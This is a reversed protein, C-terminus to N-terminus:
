MGYVDTEIKKANALKEAKINDAIKKCEIELKYKTNKIVDIAQEKVKNIEPHCKDAISKFATKVDERSEKGSKPAFLIGALVGGAVGALIGMAFAISSTKKCM